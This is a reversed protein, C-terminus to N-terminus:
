MECQNGTSYKIKVQRLARKGKRCRMEPGGAGGQLMGIDSGPV